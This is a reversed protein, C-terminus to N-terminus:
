PAPQRHTRHLTSPNTKEAPIWPRGLALSILYREEDPRKKDKTRHMNLMIQFHEGAQWFTRGGKNVDRLRARWQSTDAFPPDTKPNSVSWGKKLLQDQLNLIVILADDQLLPETQLSMRLSAVRENDFNLTFFGALPTVFGYNPDIFRLRAEVTPIRYGYHGPVAPPIPASSRQRMNEWPEGYILAIEPDESFAQVGWRATMVTLIVLLVLALKRRKSRIHLARRM